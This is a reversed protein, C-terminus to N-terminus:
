VFVIGGSDLIFNKVIAEVAVLREKASMKEYFKKYNQTAIVYLLSEECFRARLFSSFKERFEQNELANLLKEDKGSAKLQGQSKTSGENAALHRGRLERVLQMLFTLTVTNAFELLVEAADLSFAIDVIGYFMGLVFSLTFLAAIKAFSIKSKFTMEKYSNGYLAYIYIIACFAEFLMSIIILASSLKDRIGGNFMDYDEVDAELYDRYTSMGIAASFLAYITCQFVKFNNTIEVIGQLRWM